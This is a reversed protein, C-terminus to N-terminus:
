IINEKAKMILDKFEASDDLSASLLKMHDRDSAGLGIEVARKRILSVM